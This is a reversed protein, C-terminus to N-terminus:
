KMFNRFCFLQKHKTVPKAENIATKIAITIEEEKDEPLPATLAIEGCASREIVRNEVTSEVAVISFGGELKVAAFHKM